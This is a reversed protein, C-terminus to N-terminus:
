QTTLSSSSRVKLVLDRSRHHETGRQMQLPHPYSVTSVDCPPQKEAVIESLQKKYVGIGLMEMPPTKSFLNRNDKTDSNLSM